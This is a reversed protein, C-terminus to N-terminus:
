EMSPVRNPEMVQAFAHLTQQSSGWAGADLVPDVIRPKLPSDDYTM